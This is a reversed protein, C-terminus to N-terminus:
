KADKNVPPKLIALFILGVVCAVAPIIFALTSVPSASAFSSSVGLAILAAAAFGVMVMGYNAGMNKAGFYDATLAPFVGSSGGYCFAVLLIMVIYAYSQAFILLLMAALVIIFMLMISVKRGKLDSIFPFFLRGIASAIGTLSVALVALAESLNREMGLNKFMPNLIFYAMTIMMMCIIIFYLSKTRLAESPPYQKAPAPMAKKSAVDSMYGDPPNKIFWVFVIIVAFFCIALIRFTTVLGITTLLNNVLPAFLVTSLGFAFVMIGTAMGKHDPFWKQVCSITSNYAMGVGFGAIGGYFVYILWPLDVPIISALLIGAVFLIGGALVVPRPGKKDQIRGGILIGLVFTVLMINFTLSAGSWDNFYKTVPGKFISWIYIIGLCFLILAGSILTLTRTKKM